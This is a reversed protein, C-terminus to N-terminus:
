CNWLLKAIAAAQRIAFARASLSRYPRGQIAPPAATIRM